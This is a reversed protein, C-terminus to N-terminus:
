AAVENSVAVLKELAAKAKGEDISRAAMAVGDKLTAAKDAVILAAASNMLVIDRYAGPAGDLVRRLAGANHAPDGGKLDQPDALPLGAEEPSVTFRRVKGDKLEAVHTPGTTTIEDLGDSGHVVWVHKSGLEKLVNALPEVWREAFVGMLQRKAGAPNSLPGMLNFITRTGLEMRIPAVHKMASHHYAAFMFGIGTKSICQSIQEPTIDIKVGLKELVESSGSRSSLARNGHKAIPVGCGAAVFAVATSINYTGSADGGTGCTDIADEPAKVPTAKARMIRAGAAIEEVTEGRVRLAMLFAGVQAPTLEGSMMAEFALTAEDFTLPTGDAAKAILAKFDTM